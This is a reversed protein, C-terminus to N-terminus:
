PLGARTSSKINLGLELHHRRQRHPLSPRDRQQARQGVVDRGVAFLQVQLLASIQQVAHARQVEDVLIQKGLYAGVHDVLQRRVHPLTGHDPRHHGTQPEEFVLVTTPKLL